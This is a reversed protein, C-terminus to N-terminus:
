RPMLRAYGSLQLQTETLIHQRFMGRFRGREVHGGFINVSWDLSNDDIVDTAMLEDSTTTPLNRDHVFGVPFSQRPDSPFSLNIQAM